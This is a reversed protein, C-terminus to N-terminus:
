KKEEKFITQLRDDDVEVTWEKEKAPCYAISRSGIGNAALLVLAKDTYYIKHSKKIIQGKSELSRFLARKTVCKFVNLTSKQIGLIDATEQTTHM